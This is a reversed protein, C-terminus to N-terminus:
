RGDDSFPFHKKMKIKEVYNTTRKEDKTNLHFKQM